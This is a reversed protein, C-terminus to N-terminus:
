IYGAWRIGDGDNFYLMFNIKKNYKLLQRHCVAFQQDRFTPTITNSVNHGDLMLLIIINITAAWSTIMNAHLFYIEGKNHLVAMPKVLIILKSLHIINTKFTNQAEVYLTVTKLTSPVHNEFCLLNYCMSSKVKAYKHITRKCYLLWQCFDESIKWNVSIYRGIM